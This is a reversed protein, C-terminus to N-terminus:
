RASVPRRHVSGPVGGGRSGRLGFAVAHGLPDRRQFARAGGDDRAALAAIPAGGVAGLQLHDGRVAFPQRGQKGLAVRGDSVGAGGGLL